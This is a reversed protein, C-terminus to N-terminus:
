QTETAGKKGAISQKGPDTFLKLTVKIGPQLPTGAKPTQSEVTYIQDKEPAPSGQLLVIQNLQADKNKTLGLKELEAVAEKFPAGTLNPVVSPDVVVPAGPAGAVSSGEPNVNVVNFGRLSPTFGATRFIVREFLSGNAKLESFRYVTIKTEAPDYMQVAVPLMTKLDLMVEAHHWNQGDQPLNPFIILRVVTATPDFKGEHFGMEFRRKAREPPMGFLFPLPSDMINGGQMEVPIQSILAQKKEMDLNFIRTGDCWWQENQCGALEYPAGNQSVRVRPPKKEARAKEVIQKREAILKETVPEPVIDIRGKDPKEYAFEGKAQAETEFTLDYVIRSVTGELRNVKESAQSWKQLVEDMQSQLKPDMVPLRREPVASKVEIVAEKKDGASETPEDAASRSVSRVPVGQRAATPAQTPRAAAPRGQGHATACVLATMCFVAALSKM